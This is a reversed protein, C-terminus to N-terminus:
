ARDGDAVVRRTAPAALWDVAARAEETRGVVGLVM